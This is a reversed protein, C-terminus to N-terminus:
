ENIIPKVPFNFKFSVPYTNSSLDLQWDTDGFYEAIRNIDYGGLGTGKDPNSTSFKAIFKKKNFNEPFPNGNNKIELQMTDETVKLEIIFENKISFENFAYKNANSIINEMFIKLLTINALIAKGFKEDESLEKYQPIFKEKKKRIRKFIKDIENISIPELVHDNLILGKEGKELVSSIHNIDEKILNLDDILNTEYKEWYQNKVQVFADSDNAEFFRILSKANSLINQRPTGLSHKLSAFENFDKVNKGHALANREKELQKIRDSFEKLGEAKARQEEIPLLKLKINLLDKKHIVQISTSSSNHAVLQEKVYESQLENILYAIDVINEDVNIPYINHSLYIEEGQYEFYTPKLNGGKYALLLCSQNIKSYLSKKIERKEISDLILKNEVKNSNLDSIRIAKGKDPLNNREGKIFTIFDNLQVGEYDKQFYRPINLNFDNAIVEENQIVRIQSSNNNEL